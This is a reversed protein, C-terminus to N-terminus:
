LCRLISKGKLSSTSVIYCQNTGRNFCHGRKAIRAVSSGCGVIKKKLIKAETPTICRKLIDNLMVFCLTYKIIVKYGMIGFTIVMLSDIVIM